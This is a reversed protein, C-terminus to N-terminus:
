NKKVIKKKKKRKEILHIRNKFPFTFPNRYEKKFRKKDIICYFRDFLKKNDIELHKISKKNMKVVSDPFDNSKMLKGYLDNDIILHFNKKRLFIFIM